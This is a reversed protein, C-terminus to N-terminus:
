YAYFFLFNIVSLALTGSCLVSGTVPDCTLNVPARVNGCQTACATCASQGRTNAYTMNACAQQVGNVCFYGAACEDVASANFTGVGYYGSSIPVCASSRGSNPNYSGAACPTCNAQQAMSQFTGPPCSTEVGGVCSSGADCPAISTATTTNAPSAYFGAPILSCPTSLGSENSYRGAGCNLCTSAAASSQYTGPLCASLLGNTCASGAPCSVCQTADSNAYTGPGCATATNNICISGAPCTACEYPSVLQYGNECLSCYEPDPPNSVLVVCHAIIM